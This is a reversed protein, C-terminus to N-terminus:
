APEAVAAGRGVKQLLDRAILTIVQASPAGAEQQTLAIGNNISLHLKSDYPIRYSKDLKLAKEMKDPSIGGPVTARNIVVGMRDNSLEINQALDLFQKTSKITPLEPATILLVYDAADLTVLTKDNLQSGTDVVVIKFHKKLTKIIQSVMEASISDALEPQPPALLLKLGSNHPLVIETILETDLQGDHLLDSVTRTAKINLHVLLDGFQLDGDMLVTDGVEQQLAVALNAAITSTGVGGKPSYVVIVPAGEIQPGTDQAPQTAALQAQTQAAADLQRYVPLGIKYVRHICSVLEDATFPKPQFDRAGAAMAQKMYHQEAQVSMIIVQSYPAVVSMERTATIGDVDPMNIDMLVIHPKLQVAMEIGQRGNVAQGIVQMDNEFYLLRGVNERTDPNDDVILIRIKESGDSAVGPALSPPVPSVSTKAAASVVPLATEPKGEAKAAPIPAKGEAEKVPKKKGGAAKASSVKPPASRRRRMLLVVVIAVALLVLVGVITFLFIPDDM